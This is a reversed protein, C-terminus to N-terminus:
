LRTMTRANSLNWTLSCFENAKDPVENKAQGEESVLDVHWQLQLNFLYLGHVDPFSFYEWHSQERIIWINYPLIGGTCVVMWFHRKSRYGLLANIKELLFLKVSNAQLSDSSANNMCFRSLHVWVINKLARSFLSQFVWSRDCVENSM